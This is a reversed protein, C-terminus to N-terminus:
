KIVNKFLNKMDSLSVESDMQTWSGDREQVDTKWKNEGDVNVYPRYRFGLGKDEYVFSERNAIKTLVENLEDQRDNM